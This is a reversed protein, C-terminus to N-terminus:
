SSLSSGTDSSGPKQEESRKELPVLTSRLEYFNRKIKLWMEEVNM